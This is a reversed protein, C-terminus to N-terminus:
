LFLYYMINGAHCFYIFTFSSDFKALSARVQLLSNQAYSTDGVGGKMCLVEVVEM